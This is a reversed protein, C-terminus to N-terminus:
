AGLAETYRKLWGAAAIADRSLRLYVPLACGRILTDLDAASGAPRRGVAALVAALDAAYDSQNKALAFTFAQALGCTHVLAPFKKAFSEYDKLKPSGQRQKVCRFAAEALIQDRTQISM